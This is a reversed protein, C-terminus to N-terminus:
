ASAIELSSVTYSLWRRLVKLHSCTPRCFVYICRKLICPAHHFYTGPWNVIVKIFLGSNPAFVGVVWCCGNFMSEWITVDLSTIKGKTASQKQPTNAAGGISQKTSSQYNVAPSSSGANVSPTSAATITPPVTKPGLTYETIYISCLWCKQWRQWCIVLLITDSNSYHVSGPWSLDTHILKTYGLYTM